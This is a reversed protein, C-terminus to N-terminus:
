TRVFWAIVILVVGIGILSPCLVQMTGLRQQNEHAAGPQYRPIIQSVFVGGAVFLVAFIMLLFSRSDRNDVHRPPAQQQVVIAPMYNQPMYKGSMMPPMMTAQANVGQGAVNQQSNISEIVPSTEYNLTGNLKFKDM